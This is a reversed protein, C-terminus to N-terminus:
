QDTKKQVWGNEQSPDQEIKEFTLTEVENEVQLELRYIAAPLGVLDIRIQNSGIMLPMIEMQLVNGKWDLLSYSLQDELRSDVRVEFYDKAAIASMRTVMFHNSTSKNVTLVDSFSYTGTHNIQRLRYFVREAGPGVDLFSYAKPQNSEGAAKIAGLNVFHLGDTSKEVIFMLSNKEESTSWNLLIGVAIPAAEISQEYTCDAFIKDSNLTWCLILLFSHFLCSLITKKM